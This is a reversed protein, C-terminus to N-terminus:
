SLRGASKELVAWAPAGFKDRWYTYYGGTRLVARFSALDPQNITVGAKRLNALTADRDKISVARVAKSGLDFNREVTDRANKPLKNWADSNVLVHYTVISDNTLSLYKQVEFLKASLVYAPTTSAGDVLHTQMATYMEKSDMSVPSCGLTKFLSVSLASASSFIKMGKIDDASAIARAGSSMAKFGADWITGMSYVGAQQQIQSRVLSGLPGDMAAWVSKLDPFAFGVADLSAYIAIESIIADSMVTMEIAGERVGSLVNTNGGLSSFPFVKIEVQGNTDSLIKAATANFQVVLADSAPRDSSLKYSFEAAGAPFRCFAV